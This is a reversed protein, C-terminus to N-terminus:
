QQTKNLTAVSGSGIDLIMEEEKPELLELM